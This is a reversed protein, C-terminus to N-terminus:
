KGRHMVLVGTKAEREASEAQLHAELFWLRKDIDRSVEIYIDGTDKDLPDTDNISERVLAGYQAMRDCLAVVHQMGEDLNTPYEPLSSGHAAMRVTGYATGGLATIREAFLDVFDLVEGAIEDFLLHLQYFHVGKVNWHAQKIQSYLDFTEALTQNLIEVMQTRVKESLDNRTPHLVTRKPKADFGNHEHKAANKGANGKRSSNKKM